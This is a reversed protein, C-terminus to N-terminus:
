IMHVLSPSVFLQNGSTPIGSLLSSSAVEVTTGAPSPVNEVTASASTDDVEEVLVISAEQEDGCSPNFRDETTPALQDM